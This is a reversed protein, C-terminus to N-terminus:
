IILAMALPVQSSIVPTSLLYSPPTWTSLPLIVWLSKLPHWEMASVCYLIALALCCRLCCLASAHILPESFWSNLQLKQRVCDQVIASVRGQHCELTDLYLTPNSLKGQLPCLGLFKTTDIQHKSQQNCYGLTTICPLRWRSKFSQWVANPWASFWQSPSATCFAEMSVPGACNHHLVRDLSDWCSFDTSAM